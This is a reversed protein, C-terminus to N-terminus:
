LQALPKFGRHKLWPYEQMPSLMLAQLTPVSWVYRYGRVQSLQAIPVSSLRAAAVMGMCPYHARQLIHM